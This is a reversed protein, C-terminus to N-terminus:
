RGSAGNIKQRISKIQEPNLNTLEAVKNLTMGGQLMNMAIEQRTEQRGKQLGEQRGEERFTDVASLVM